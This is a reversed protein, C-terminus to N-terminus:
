KDKVLRISCGLTKVRYSRDLNFNIYMLDCYYGYSADYQTASWFFAFVNQELFEGTYYRYGAPVASFGSANNLNTESSIAGPETCAQWDSSGAAMSKAIKNETTTGDFNYGHTILFNQLTDWEANSPVHWGKPALKSSSATTFPYLAGWKKKAAADTANKYFYYSGSAISTGDNYKTARLNEATWVQNGIRVTRYTNGEGDAVTGTDLPTMTIQLGSTDSNKMVIRTLQYGEKIFLLADDIAAAARGQKALGPGGELRTRSRGPAAAIVSRFTFPRGNVSVRYVRVGGEFLPLSISSSGRPVIGGQSALLRGGCDYVSVRIDTREAADFFFRGDEVFFSRNGGSAASFSRGGAGTNDKLTFSGNAGTVTGVAAKGLRVAVGELGSGGSNKVTGSINIAQAPGMIASLLFAFYVIKMKM